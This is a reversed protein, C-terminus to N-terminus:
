KYFPTLTVTGSIVIHLGVSFNTTPIRYMTAAVPTFTDIIKTGSAATNDYVTILPTASAASVFMGAFRGVGTKITTSATIPVNYDFREEVKTVDDALVEGAGASANNIYLNGNDDILLDFAKGTAKRAIM